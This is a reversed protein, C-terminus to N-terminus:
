RRGPDRVAWNPEGGPHRARPSHSTDILLAAGAIDEWAYLKFNQNGGPNDDDQVVFLGQPFLSSLPCNSVAIGDTSSVDDIAGELPDITAVFAHNGGREYVKYSDNGQSSAILYGRGNSGEYIALGEVDATLGNEGVRAILTGTVGSEPEAGYKWIGVKEESIYFAQYEPDAVCGEVNSGLELSRVLTGRVKDRMAYQLEYQEVRGSRTAFCFFRGTRDSRYGCMGEPGGGNLVPIVGGDTIDVLQRTDPDVMWVKVGKPGGARIGAVVLDINLHCLQFGYLVDVNNPETGDSVQGASSGDLNYTHLAGRKDTGIILSQSPDTPHIWVAPDDAADGRNPVPVTEARAVPQLVPAEAAAAAVLPQTPYHHTPSACAAVGTSAAAALLMLRKM